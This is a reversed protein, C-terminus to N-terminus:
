NRASDSGQGLIAFAFSVLAMAAWTAIFAPYALARFDTMNPSIPIGLLYNYLGLVGVYFIVAAIAAAVIRKVMGMVPSDGPRPLNLAYGIGVSLFILAFYLALASQQDLLILLEEGYFWKTMLVWLPISFFGIYFVPSEFTNSSGKSQM